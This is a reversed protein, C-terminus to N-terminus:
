DNSTPELLPIKITFKSGKGVESEVKISGGHAEIIHKALALGLGSGRTERVKTTPVRYFKDFIKKLEEKAIGVGSDTVSIMASNSNRFVKVLIYKRKESYKVANSLLNLLAQSIADKDIKLTILENPLESEIEFGNDRIHFKYAELSSRVVKVLDADEFYYKKVGSDMRSFDLVNDILHTLRESEKRIISYFERRKKEDTVIGEDLTEGFMRILSLPTKLEHSVSSVFESKMRSIELEHIVARVMVVIGILMVIIIGVFLVLYLQKEKGVLQEISKGDRDFLAVKWNVFLQSFNEAVLYNSIPINHQLYLLSDKDGLIGVFVDRGLEVSTLIEPFLNSLIYDKDFQYGLVLLQSQQFVEPLKFFGFQLDSNNDKRSINHSQLESSPSNRLDSEIKSLINQNILEIFGIQELLRNERIMLDEIESESSNINIDSAELKRIEACVSKLYYLYEGGLLDWPNNLLQKYLELLVKLQEKDAKLAEYGEIMQSLAVISAPIKGITIEDNGLELIKKYKDIGKKYKGVKYYCRGIRSLLLAREQSSITHIMAKQYLRIADVYDKGVFEAKEAMNFSSIATPNMLLQSGNIKNWGLSVSSSILGADTNVLFLHKFAPNESEINGLWTKLDNANHPKSYLEIAINRLNAELQFVESELKDRVLNVTGGLKTNINEAKQNISQLSLYSIFAGPLLILLFATFFIKTKPSIHKLFEFM